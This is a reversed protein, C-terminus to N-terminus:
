ITFPRKRFKSLVVLAMGKIKLEINSKAKTPRAKRSWRQLAVRTKERLRRVIRGLLAKLNHRGWVKFVTRINSRDNKGAKKAFVQLAMAINAMQRGAAAFQIRRWANNYCRAMITTLATLLQRAARKKSVPHLLARWAVQKLKGLTASYKLVVGLLKRV